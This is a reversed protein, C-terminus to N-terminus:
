VPIWEEYTGQESLLEGLTEFFTSTMTEIGEWQQENVWDFYEDEKVKAWTEEVKESVIFPSQGEKGWTDEKDLLRAAVKRANIYTMVFLAKKVVEQVAYRLSSLADVLTEKITPNIMCMAAIAGERIRLTAANVSQGVKGAVLSALSKGVTEGLPVYLANAAQKLDDMMKKDSAAWDFNYAQSVGQTLKSMVTPITVGLFGGVFAPHAAVLSGVGAGVFGLAQGGVILVTGAILGGAVIGAIKPVLPAEQLWEKFFGWNGKKINEAIVLAGGKVSGAWKKFDFAKLSQIQQYFPTSFANFWQSSMAGGAIATSTLERQDIGVINSM